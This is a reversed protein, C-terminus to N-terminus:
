PSGVRAVAALPSAKSAAMSSSRWSWAAANMACSELSCRGAATWLTNHHFSGVGEAPDDGDGDDGHHQCARYRKAGARLRFIHLAAAHGIIREVPQGPGIKFYGAAGDM